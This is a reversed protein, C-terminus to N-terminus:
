VIILSFFQTEKNVQVQSILVYWLELLSIKNSNDFISNVITMFRIYPKLHILKDLLQAEVTSSLDVEKFIATFNSKRFNLQCLTM